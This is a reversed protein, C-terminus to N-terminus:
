NLRILSSILIILDSLQTRRKYKYWYCDKMTLTTVQLWITHIRWIQIKEKGFNNNSQTSQM